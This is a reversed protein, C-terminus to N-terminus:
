RFFTNQHEKVWRQALEFHKFEKERARFEKNHVASRGKADVTAPCEHHLMEHYIVYSIFYDPFSPSDMIRNIKILKLPDYYLGFTVRSKNQQKTKGFWTISLNLQNHFYESNIQDYISKLNYVNGHTYLKSPDLQYSYDLTHLKEEIYAKVVPAMMKHEKSIYCALAEMVNKPANLFIRHMSVKTTDPEWRVSLMTSRNDNIKLNLKVGSSNEIKQQFSALPRVLENMPKILSHTM